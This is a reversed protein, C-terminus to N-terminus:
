EPFSQLACGSLCLPLKLMLQEAAWLRLARPQGTLQPLHDWALPIRQFLSPWLQELLVQPEVAWPEVLALSNPPKGIEPLLVELLMLCRLHCLHGAAWCLKM